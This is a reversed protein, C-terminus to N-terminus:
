LPEAPGASKESSALKVEGANQTEPSIRQSENLSINVKALNIAM